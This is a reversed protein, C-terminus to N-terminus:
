RVDALSGERRPSGPEAGASRVQADPMAQQAALHDALRLALAVLTITPFNAGATPFVSSGAVYFNGIGHVRCHRDVVGTSPSDSMRTTGMHHWTGELSAPWDRGLLPADLTVDAIGADTLEKGVIAFARDFTRKVQDGLRWDVRARPMGLADRTDALTVRSDRDPVPECIMQLRAETIMQFHLEKLLGVSPLQRAAVFNMANLPQAAITGLDGWFGHVADVKGHLRLKMRVLAEAAPTGEGPFISAFWIRANLLQERRQVEPALTLQAAMHTGHARVARNLYHYMADYLKNRRWSERLKLRGSLLRPHDM